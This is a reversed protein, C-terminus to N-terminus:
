VKLSFMSDLSTLLGGLEGFIPWFVRNFGSTLASASPVTTKVMISQFSAGFPIVFLFILVM